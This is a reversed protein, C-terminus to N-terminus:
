SSVGGETRLMPEITKAHEGYIQIEESSIPSNNMIKQAISVLTEHPVKGTKVFEAYIEDDRLKSPSSEKERSLEKARIRFKKIQISIEIFFKEEPRLSSGQSIMYEELPEPDTTKATMNLVESTKSGKGSPGMKVYAEDWMRQLLSFNEQIQDPTYQRGDLFAGERVKQQLLEWAENPKLGKILQDAVGLSRLDSQVREIMFVPVEEDEGGEQAEVREKMSFKKALTRVSDQIDEPTPGGQEPSLMKSAEWNREMEIKRRELVSYPRSLNPDYEGFLPDTIYKAFGIRIAYWIPNQQKEKGEVKETVHVSTNSGDKKSHKAFASDM